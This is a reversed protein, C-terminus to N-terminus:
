SPLHRGLAVNKVTCLTNNQLIFTIESRNQPCDYLLKVFTAFKNTFAHSDIDDPELLIIVRDM